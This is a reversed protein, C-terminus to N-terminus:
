LGTILISKKVADNRIDFQLYSSIETIREPFVREITKRITNLDRRSSKTNGIHLIFNNFLFFLIFLIICAIHEKMFQIARMLHVKVTNPSLKLQAAIENRRLGEERSMQYVLQQKPPLQHLVTNLQANSEKYIFLEEADTSVSPMMLQFGDYLKARRSNGRIYRYGLNSVVKHLWGGPNGEFVKERHLWLKLFAEQVIDEAAQKNQTIQYAISFLTETHSRVIGTFQLDYSRVM